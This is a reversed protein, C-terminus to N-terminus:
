PCVLKRTYRATGSFFTERYTAGSNCQPQIEIEATAPPESLAPNLTCTVTTTGGGACTGSPFPASGTDVTWTALVPTAFTFSMRDIRKQCAYELLGTGALGAPRSEEFCAFVKFKEFGWKGRATYANALVTSGVSVAKKM